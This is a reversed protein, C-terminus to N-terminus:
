RWGREANRVDEPTQDEVRRAMMQLHSVSKPNKGESSQEERVRATLEDSTSGEEINRRPLRNPRNGSTADESAADGLTKTTRSATGDQWGTFSHNTARARRTTTEV